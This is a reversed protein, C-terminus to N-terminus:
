RRQADETIQHSFLAQRLTPCIATLQEKASESILHHADNRRAPSRQGYTPAWFFAAHTMTEKRRGIPPLRWTHMNVSERLRDRQARALKSNDGDKVVTLLALTDDAGVATM